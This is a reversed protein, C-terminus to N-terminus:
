TVKVWRGSGLGKKKKEILVSSAGSLVSIMRIVECRWCRSKQVCVPDAIAKM